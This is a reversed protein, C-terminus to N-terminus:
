NIIIVEDDEEIEKINSEQTPKLDLVENATPEETPEM